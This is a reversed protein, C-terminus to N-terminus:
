NGLKGHFYSELKIAGATPAVVAMKLYRYDLYGFDVIGSAAVALTSIAIGGSSPYVVYNIGDNSVSWTFSPSGVITAPTLIPNKATVQNSVSTITVALGAIAGTSTASLKINNADVPIIFYTTGDTLGGITAGDHDYVVPLGLTFGHSPLAINASGSSVASNVAGHMNHTSIKLSNSSLMNYLHAQGNITSSAYVVGAPTSSSFLIDPFLGMATISSIFNLAVQSVAIDGSINFDDGAIFVSNGIQLKVGSLGTTSLITFYGGGTQGNSFTAAAFTTTGYNVQASLRSYPGADLVYSADYALGPQNVVYGTVSVTQPDKAIKQGTINLANANVAMLMIASIIIKQMKTIETYIFFVVRM